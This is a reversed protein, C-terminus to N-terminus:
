PKPAPKKKVVRKRVNTGDTIPEKRFIFWRNYFSIQKEPASMNLSKLMWEEYSPLVRKREEVYNAMSNFLQQFSGTSMNNDLKLEACEEATLLRIKYPEFVETLLDFDVLYEDIYQNISELYVKITQGTTRRLFPKAYKRQISWITVNNKIGKLMDETDPLGDLENAVVVGDFCTGIFFGGPKLCKDVNYAFNELTEINKFFYHVAFQSSVVDFGNVALNEFTKLTLSPAPAYGFAIQALLREQENPMSAISDKTLRKSVDFPLFLYQHTTRSFKRKRDMIENLRKYLGNQPNNINDSFLDLGLVRKFDSEIWKNLDGGKGCGLDILSNYKPDSFRGILHKSKVWLNHFNAMDYTNSKDRDINVNAYYRSDDSKIMDVTVAISGTIHKITVPNIITRWIREAVGVDNAAGRINRRSRYLETKDLRVRIPIWKLNVSDWSCEVVSEDQIIDKNVCRLFGDHDIAVQTSDVTLDQELGPPLFRVPISGSRRINNNCFDWSSANTVDGRVYLELTKLLGSSTVNQLLEDQSSGPMKRIKVLFDITNDKPPKWKLVSEWTGSLRVSNDNGFAGVPAWLPTFILGDTEYGLLHASQQELLERCATFLDKSKLIVKFEKAVVVYREDNSHSANSKFDRAFGMRSSATSDSVRELPQSAVQEGRVYYTDFIMITRKNPGTIVEADFLSNKFSPCNLRTPKVVMRNNILFVAGDKNVYVINREGDAKHTVTYNSKVSNPADDLLNHMELTVPQPGVFLARPNNNLKAHDLESGFVLKHYENLIAQSKSSPMLYECDNIVKLIEAVISLLTRVIGDNDNHNSGIYEVEIEYLLPTNSISTSSLYRGNKQRVATCDVRFDQLFFSTRKKMRFTKDLDKMTSLYNLVEKTDRIPDEDSLKVIVDHESIREPPIIKKKRMGTAAMTFGTKCFTSIDSLGSISIRVDRLEQCTIDLVEKAHETRFGRTVFYTTVRQFAYSDIYKTIRAELELKQDTLMTVMRLINAYQTRTIHLGM